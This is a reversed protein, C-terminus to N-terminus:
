VKINKDLEAEKLITEMMPYMSQDFANKKGPRNLTITRIGGGDSVLIKEM